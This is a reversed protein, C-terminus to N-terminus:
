AWFKIILPTVSFNSEQNQRTQEELTLAKPYPHSAAMRCTLSMQASANSFRAARCQGLGEPAATM